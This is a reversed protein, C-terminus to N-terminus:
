NASTEIPPALLAREVEGRLVRAPFVRHRAALAARYWFHMQHEWTFAIGGHAQICRELVIPYIRGCVLRSAARAVQGDPEDRDAALAADYAHGRALEVDAYADAILHKVAQFSGVPVGFQRRQGVYEVTRRLMETAGGVAEGDLWHMYSELGSRLIETHDALPGGLQDGPGVEVGDLTLPATPAAYDLANPAGVQVGDGDAAVVAVAVRGDVEVPVLFRDAAAAFQVDPAGGRLRLGGGPLAEARVVTWRPDRPTGADPLVFAALTTGAAVASADIPAAGGTASLLPAVLTVTVGLPAPVLHAGASEGLEVLTRADGPADDGCAIGLWGGDGLARWTDPCFGDGDLAATLRAPTVEGDLVADLGERLMQQEDTIVAGGARVRPRVAGAAVSASSPLGIARAITNRQIESTGAYITEGRSYLFAGLWEAAEPRGAANELVDVVLGLIRQHAESWHLKTLAALGGLAEPDDIVRLVRMVLSTLMRSDLYSDVLRALVQPDAVAGADDCVRVVNAVERRMQFSREAFSLGRELALAEIAMSWGQNLEGVVATMPIIADDFFVEAFEWGGAITRLPRVTVGPQAMDVIVMSVGKHRPADRDTRVLAYCYDAYAAFSTWVKQGNVILRDGDVVARTQLNALDSGANPESFGQCWLESHDLMAPLFKRKQEETGYRRLIPGFIRIGNSNLPEPAGARVVEELLLREGEHSLGRGGDEVPWGPAVWGGRALREGWARRITVAREEETGRSIDRWEPPLEDALWRRFELQVDELREDVIPQTV